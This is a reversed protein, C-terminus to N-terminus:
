VARNRRWRYYQACQKNQESAFSGVMPISNFVRCVNLFTARELLYNQVDIHTSLLDGRVNGIGKVHEAMVM